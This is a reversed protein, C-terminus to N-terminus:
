RFRTAIEIVCTDKLIGIRKLSMNLEVNRMSM